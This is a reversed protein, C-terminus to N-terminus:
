PDFIAIKSDLCKVAFLLIYQEYIKSELNKKPRNNNKHEYVKINKV